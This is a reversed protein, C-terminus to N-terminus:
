IKKLLYYIFINRIILLILIMYKPEFYALFYLNLFNKIFLSILYYNYFLSILHARENMQSHSIMDKIMDNLSQIYKTDNESDSLLLENKLDQFGNLQKEIEEM